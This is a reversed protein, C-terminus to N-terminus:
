STPSPATPAAVDFRLRRAPPALLPRRQREAWLVPDGTTTRALQWRLEVQMGTAPVAAPVIRHVEGSSSTLVGASASPLLTPPATSYDALRRQVFSVGDGSDEITYPIWHAESGEGPVYEYAKAVTLDAPPPPVLSTGGPEVHDGAADRGRIRREVAWVVNSADDTGFQVLEVVEGALPRVAVQWLVLDAADLGAVRFLTWLGTNGTAWRGLWAGAGTMTATVPGLEARASVRLVARAFLGNATVALELRTLVTDVWLGAGPGGIALGLAHTFEVGLGAGAGGASLGSGQAFGSVVDATFTLAPPLPLGGGIPGIVDASLGFRVPSLAVLWSFLPTGPETLLRLGVAANGIAIHTGDVRGLLFANADPATAPSVTLTLPDPSRAGPDLETGDWTVTATLDGSRPSDLHLVWGPALATSGSPRLTGPIVAGLALDGVSGAPVDADPGDAVLYISGQPQTASLGRSPLALYVPSNVEDILEGLGVGDGTPLALFGRGAYELRLLAHPDGALLLLLVQLSKVDGLGGVRNLLMSLAFQGPDGTVQRLRTWDIRLHRVRVAEGTGEWSITIVGVLTLAEAVRPLKVQLVRVAITERVAIDAVVRRLTALWKEVGAGSPDTNITLLDGLSERLGVISTPLPPAPDPDGPLPDALADTIAAGLTSLLDAM